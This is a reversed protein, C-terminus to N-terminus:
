LEAELQAPGVVHAHLIKGTSQIKVRVTQGLTGRELSTATLYMQMGARSVLHLRVEQGSEILAPAPRATRGLVLDSSGGKPSTSAESVLDSHLRSPITAMAIFPLLNPDASSVLWFKMEHLMRDSEIRTVRLQADEITAILVRASLRIRDPTIQVNRLAEDDSRRIAEV